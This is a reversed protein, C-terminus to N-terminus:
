VSFLGSPPRQLGGNKASASRPGWVYGGAWMDHIVTTVNDRLTVIELVTGTFVQQGMFLPWIRIQPDAGAEGTDTAAFNLAYAVDRVGVKFAGFNRTEFRPGELSGNTSVFLEELSFYNDLRENGALNFRLFQSLLGGSADGTTQIKGRWVRTPLRPDDFGGWPEYTIDAVGIVSM